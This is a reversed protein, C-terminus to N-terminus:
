GRDEGPGVRRVAGDEVVGEEGDVDREGEEAIGGEHHGRPVGEEEELKVLVQLGPAERGEVALQRRELHQLAHHQPGQGGAEAGQGERDDLIRM